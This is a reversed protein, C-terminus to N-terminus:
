MWDLDPQTRCLEMVRFAVRINQPESLEEVKAEDLCTHLVMAVYGVAKEDKVSLLQRICFHIYPLRLPSCSWCYKFNINITPKVTNLVINEANCEAPIMYSSCPARLVWLFLDPFSQRWIEDKSMQNGAALNGLFQIGCRLAPHCPPPDHFLNFLPWMSIHRLIYSRDPSVKLGAM